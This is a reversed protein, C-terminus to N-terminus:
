NAEASPNASSMNVLSWLPPRSPLPPFVPHLLRSSFVHPLLRSFFHMPLHGPLSFPAPSSFSPSLLCVSKQQQQKASWRSPSGGIMPRRPRLLSQNLSIRLSEWLLTNVCAASEHWWMGCLWRTVRRGLSSAQEGDAPSLGQRPRLGVPEVGDSM